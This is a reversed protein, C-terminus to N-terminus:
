DRCLLWYRNLDGEAGDARFDDIPRLGLAEPWSEFEADSVQHCYRPPATPDDGFRLLFDGPDLQGPQIPTGLVAGISSWDVLRREFRERGAFQWATLALLGGRALRATAARLLALRTSRGPVHHLVGMLAVLSFSGKPLDAGPAPTALFDQALFGIRDATGPELRERAAELLATNSDTGTYDFELGAELLFRAFRGNGCGIDLIRVSEKPLAEVVRAWGPWPLDVRSADFAEAHAEYFALSLAHLQHRTREDM